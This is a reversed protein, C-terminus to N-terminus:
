YVRQLLLLLVGPSKKKPPPIHFAGKKVGPRLALGVFLALTCSLHIVTVAFMRCDSVFNSSINPHQQAM